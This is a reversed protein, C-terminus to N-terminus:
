KARSNLIIGAFIIATGIYNQISYTEGFICQAILITYITTSGKFLYADSLPIRKIIQQWLIAYIGLVLILCFLYGIFSISLFSCKSALKSFITSSSYIAFAAMLGIYKLASNM